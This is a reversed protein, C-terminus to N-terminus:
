FRAVLQGDADLEYDANGTHGTLYRKGILARVLRDAYVSGARKVHGAERGVAAGQLHFATVAATVDVVAVDPHAIATAMVYSDWRYVGVLFPPMILAAPTRKRGGRGGRGGGGGSGGGTEGETGENWFGAAATVLYDIGYAGHMAGGQAKIRDAWAPDTFDLRGHALQVDTRRGVMLTRPNPQQPPAADAAGSSHNENFSSFFLRQAAWVFDSGLAIDSNILVLLPTRAMDAAQDVVCSM